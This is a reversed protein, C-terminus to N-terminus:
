RSRPPGAEVAVGMRALGTLLAVLWLGRVPWPGHGSSLGDISLWLIALVAIVIMLEILSFGRSCGGAM